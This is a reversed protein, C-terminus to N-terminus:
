DQAYARAGDVASPDVWYRLAATAGQPLQRRALQFFDFRGMAFEDAPADVRSVYPM